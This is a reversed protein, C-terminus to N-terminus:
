LKVSSLLKTAWKPLFFPFSLPSLPSLPNVAMSQLILDSCYMIRDEPRQQDHADAGAGRHPRQGREAGVLWAKQREGAYRWMGKLAEYVAFKDPDEDPQGYHRRAEREVGDYIHMVDGAMFPKNAFVKYIAQLLAADAQKDSAIERNLTFQDTVDIGFLWMILDRVRREWEPFSGAATKALKPMGAQRFARMITFAATLLEDRHEAIYAPPDLKFVRTEPSADNALLNLVIVRRTMDGYFEIGRGTAAVLSRNVVHILESKGLTRVHGGGETIISELADNSIRKGNANDIVLCPAPTRFMSGVRKDFEDANFGYTMFRPHTNFALQSVARILKGKGVAAVGNLGFMPATQIFPRELATFILTLILVCGMAEDAFEYERFPRWLKGLAKLGDSRTPNDPVDLVPTRDRFVGTAEHYGVGFDLNGADDIIPVRALGNLQRIAMKARSLKLYNKCTEAPAHIRRLKPKEDEKARGPSYGLWHDQDALYLIDADTTELMVPMDCEDIVGLTMGEPASADQDVIRPFLVAAGPSIRLSILRDGSQFTYPDAAVRRDLAEMIRAKNGPIDQLTQPPLALLLTKGGVLPASPPLAGAQAALQVADAYARWADGDFTGRERALQILTGISVGGPKDKLSDWDKDFDKASYKDGGLMSWERAIDEAHPAGSAHAALLCELWQGRGGSAIDPLVGLMQRLAEDKDDDSLKNFWGLEVGARMDDNAAAIEEDILSSPKPARTRVNSRMFPELPRAIEDLAYDRGVIEPMLTVAPRNSYKYNWTEPIRLVRSADATVKKDTILGHAETANRLAEALPKWEAKALSREVIWHCHFGGGGSMIRMTPPPLGIAHVFANLATLAEATTAYAGDKVDVDIFFSRLFRANDVSRKNIVLQSSMCVYVDTTLALRSASVLMDDVNRHSIGPWDHESKVWHINLWGGAADDWPLARALFARATGNLTNSPNSAIDTMAAGESDIHEGM